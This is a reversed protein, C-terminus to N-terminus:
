ILNLNFKSLLFYKSSHQIPGLAQGLGFMWNIIGSLKDAVELKNKPYMEEGKEIM